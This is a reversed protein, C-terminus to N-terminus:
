PLTVKANRTLAARRPSARPSPLLPCRAHCGVSHPRSVNRELTARRWAGTWGRLDAETRERATMERLPPWLVSLRVETVEGEEQRRAVLRASAWARTAPVVNCSFSQLRRVLSSVAHLYRNEHCLAAPPCVVRRRAPLSPVRGILPLGDDTCTPLVGTVSYSSGRRTGYVRPGRRSRAGRLRSM